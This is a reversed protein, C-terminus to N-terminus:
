DLYKMYFEEKERMRKREHLKNDNYGLLHLLGHVIVRNLEEAFNNKSYLIANKKVVDICVYIEASVVDLYSSDFTIIDTEYNHNLYNKNISIIESKCVFIYRIDGLKKGEKKLIKELWNKYLIKKNLQFEPIQSIFKIQM